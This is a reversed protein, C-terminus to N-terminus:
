ALVMLLLSSCLQGPRLGERVDRTRMQKHLGTSGLSQASLEEKTLRVKRKMDAASPQECDTPLNSFKVQDEQRPRRLEISETPGCQRSHLNVMHEM